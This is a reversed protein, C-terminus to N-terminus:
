KSGWSPRDLSRELAQHALVPFQLGDNAALNLPLVRLQDFGEGRVHALVARQHLRQMGFSGVSDDAREGGGGLLRQGVM